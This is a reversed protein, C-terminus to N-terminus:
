DTPKGLPVEKRSNIRINQKLRNSKEESPLNVIRILEFYNGEMVKQIDNEGLFYVLKEEDVETPFVFNLAEKHKEYLNNPKSQAASVSQKRNSFGSVNIENVLFFHDYEDWNEVFYVMNNVVNSELTWAVWWELGHRAYILTNEEEIIGKFTGLEHFADLTITQQPNAVQYGTNFFLEALLILISLFRSLSGSSVIFAFLPIAPLFAMLTFRQGFTPNYIPAALFLTLLICTWIFAKNVPTLQKRKVVAFFTSVAAIGMAILSPVDNWELGKQDQLVKFALWRQLAVGQFITSVDFTSNLLRQVRTPDFIYVLSLSLGAILIAGILIWFVMKKKKSYLLNFLIFMFGTLLTIGAVGIHTLCSLALFLLAFFGNEKGQAYFTKYLFLLFVLALVLGFANKQFDGLMRLLSGNLAAFLGTILCMQFSIKEKQSAKGFIGAFFCAPVSILGPLLVDLIRTTFLIGRNGAFMYPIYSFLAYIYFLLPFDSTGTVGTELISRTQLPYYAGNIGPPLDTSFQVFGRLFWGFILTVCISLILKKKDSRELEQMEQM